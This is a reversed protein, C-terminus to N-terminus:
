KEQEYELGYIYDRQVSDVANRIAEAIEAGDSKLTPCLEEFFDFVMIYAKHKWYETLIM